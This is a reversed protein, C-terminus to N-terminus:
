NPRCAAPLRLAGAAEPLGCAARILEPLYPEFRAMVVRYDDASLRGTRRRWEVFAWLSAIASIRLSPQQREILAVFAAVDLAGWAPAGSSALWLQEAARGVFSVDDLQAEVDVGQVEISCVHADTCVEDLWRQEDPHVPTERGWTYFGGDVETMFM